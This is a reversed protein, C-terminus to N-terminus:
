NSNDLNIQDAQVRIDGADSSVNSAIQSAGQSYNQFAVTADSINVRMTSVYAELIQKVAKIFDSAASQIAGKYAVELKPNENFGQIIGDIKDCYAIIAPKLSGELGAEDIGAFGGDWFNSLATQIGGVIAELRSRAGAITADINNDMASTINGIASQISM